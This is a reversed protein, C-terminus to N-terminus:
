KNKEDLKNGETSNTDTLIGFSALLSLIATIAGYLATSESQPVVVGFAALISIGAAVLASLLTAWAKVSHTDFNIKSSLRKM